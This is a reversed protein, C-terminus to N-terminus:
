LSDGTTEAFRPAQADMYEHLDRLKTASHALVDGGHQEYWRASDRLACKIAFMQDGTLEVSYKLRSVTSPVYLVAGAASKPLNAVDAGVELETECEGVRLNWYNCSGSCRCKQLPFEIATTM